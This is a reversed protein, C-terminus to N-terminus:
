YKELVIYVEVIEKTSYDMIVICCTGYKKENIDWYSLDVGAILKLNKIQFNNVLEVEPLLESQINTFEEILTNEDFKDLRM